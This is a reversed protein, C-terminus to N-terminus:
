GRHDPDDLLDELNNKRELASTDKTVIRHTGSEQQIEVLTELAKTAKELIRMLVTKDERADRLRDDELGRIRIIASDLNKSCRLEDAEVRELLVAERKKREAELREVKKYLTYAIIGLLAAVVGYELLKPLLQEM